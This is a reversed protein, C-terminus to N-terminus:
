YIGERPQWNGGYKDHLFNTIQDKNLIAVLPNERTFDYIRYTDNGLPVVNVFYMFGEGDKDTWYIFSDIGNQKLLKYFGQTFKDCDFDEIRNPNCTRDLETAYNSTLDEIIQILNM